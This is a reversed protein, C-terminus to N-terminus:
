TEGVTIHSNEVGERRGSVSATHVPQPLLSLLPEVNVPPGVAQTGAPGAGLPAPGARLPAPRAAM